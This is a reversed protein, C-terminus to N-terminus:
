EGDVNGGMSSVHNIDVNQSHSNEATTPQHRLLTDSGSGECTPCQVQELSHTAVAQGCCEGTELVNGCCGPVTVNIEFWGQGNCGKCDSMAIVL